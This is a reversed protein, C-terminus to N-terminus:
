GALSRGARRRLLSQVLKLIEIISVPALALAAIVFWYWGLGLEVKFLPRLFPVTVIALQLVTSIAIAGLLWRNSFFGLDPMTYRRSRCGFSFFLQAFAVTCFAATRAQPLNGAPRCLVVYYAIAAAAAILAGHCLIRFAHIRDIVPERPPHPPRSMVDPEAPEVGLALAPLADTILNIWLIQIALLPTPWGVLAAFFMLLVEGGNTALLYHVFKQINAFITRGEEVANVITAFHDDTLVMDSAEKTVDTGTIGMAVGIDAAKLAPADNVGDGTMAVIHGKTRWAKVVRLKHQATVRAYVPMQEARRALDIDSLKDLEIGTVVRDAVGAIGLDRAIAIATEPHDGTIMIPRIGAMRCRAVAERAEDRPPDLMGVLGAFVLDKEEDMDRGTADEKYALGLVRLARAAMHRAAELIERRRDDDLPLLEHNAREHTCKALVVEPAGKTSMISTGEPMRAVVSMAKRDSDFPIERIISRERGSINEGAKLAAVLLAGETPDGVVTWKGQNERDANVQAHNCMAGVILLQHLDTMALPDVEEQGNTGNSGITLFRGLPAYGSGTVEYSKRGAIIERVTMENRTLTGTKDSCIVTVVGLTEVSPLRRVLANRRAMRQVGLALAVTVVAPMGEPVAAVALSVSLLFVDLLKGGRLVSVIFIIAVITLVVVLLMRGLEALRRQLPTPAPQQQLMGAINGMETHVGTAVVIGAGSGAVISTGMYVMNVREALPAQEPIVKRYDKDVPVSEGTLVAESARLGTSVVLRLDAPVHDGTELVALDGVVIEAAAVQGLRGGRIVKAHPSALKQLGTLAREARAEQIFGLTGNLVVIALIVVADLWDGALRSIAAAFILIWIVLDAFQRTFRKWAPIRQGQPLENRGFRSRLEEVQYRRLGHRADSGFLKPVAESDLAHVASRATVKEASASTSANGVNQQPTEPM